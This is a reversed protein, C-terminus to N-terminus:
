VYNDTTRSHRKILFAVHEAAFSWTSEHTNTFVQMKCIPFILGLTSTFYLIQNWKMHGFAPQKALTVARETM